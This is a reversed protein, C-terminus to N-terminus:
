NRASSRRTRLRCSTAAARRRSARQRAYSMWLPVRWIQPKKPDYRTLLAGLDGFARAHVRLRPVRDDEHAAHERVVARCETGGARASHEDATKAAQMWSRGDRAAMELMAIISNRTIRVRTPYDKWSHTEVLVGIRNRAAWYETGFRKAGAAIAFGSAPDDDRVFSPYFDLPLSGADRMRKMLEDRM